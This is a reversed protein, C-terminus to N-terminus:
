HYSPYSYLVLIVPHQCAQFRVTERKSISTTSGTSSAEHLQPTTEQKMVVSSGSTGTEHPTEISATEQVLVSVSDSHWVEGPTLLLFVKAQFAELVEDEEVATGDEELCLM